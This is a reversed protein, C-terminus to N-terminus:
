EERRRRNRTLVAIGGTSLVVASIMTAMKRDGTEPNEKSIDQDSGSGSTDTRTEDEPLAPRPNVTVTITKRASAGLQDRVEYTVIYVGQVDPRVTNETVLIEDTLDGDEEDSATVGDLPHFPDGATLVRDDAEIEPIHNLEVMRPNVTVSIKQTATHGYSDTVSFVVQYVGPSSTDVTNEVIVISETLDQDEKDWASVGEM